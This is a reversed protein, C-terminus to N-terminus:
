HRIIKRVLRGAFRLPKTIKWSRSSELMAKQISAEYGEKIQKATEEDLSFVKADCHLTGSAPHQIQITILPNDTDFYFASGIHSYANTTFPLDNNDIKIFTDKVICYRNCPKIMISRMDETVNIDIPFHYFVDKEYESFGNGTDYFINISSIQKVNEYFPHYIRSMKEYIIKTAEEMPITTSIRPFGKDNYDLLPEQIFFPKELRTSRLIFDYDTRRRLREDFEGIENYVAKNYVFVGMDIFNGRLLFSYDFPIGQLAVGTETKREVQAYFMRIEPHETIYSAYTELYNPFLKNDDDLFVIWENKALRVGTNRAANLGKNREHKTYIFRGSKFENEYIKKVLENTDDTSCDDVIIFEFNQYTQALLSDIADCICFARNYTPMIVSFFPTIKRTKDNV